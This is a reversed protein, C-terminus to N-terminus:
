IEGKYGNKHLWNIFKKIDETDWDKIKQRLEPTMKSFDIGKNQNGKSQQQKRKLLEEKALESVQEDKTLRELTKISTNPHEIVNEKIDTDIDKSLRDLIKETANKNLSVAQRSGIWEDKSLKDLIEIPTNNNQAVTGRIGNNKDNSMKKLTKISTNPNKAVNYRVEDDEDDSLYDLIESTTKESNALKYKDDDSLSDIRNKQSESLSKNLERKRKKREILMLTANMNIEQDLDHSLEQLTENSTNPNYVVGSRVTWDGHSLRDLTKSSTNPNKAVNRQIDVSKDNSLYDLIEPTAEKSKALEWKDDHSLSDIENKQRDSIGKNETKVSKNEKKQELKSWGKETKHYGGAPKKKHEPDYIYDTDALLQKAIRVLEKAIKNM